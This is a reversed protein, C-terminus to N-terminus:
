AAKVAAIARDFIVLLTTHDVTDNMVTLGDKHGLARAERDLAAMAPSFCDSTTVRSIAGFACYRMAEPARAECPEGQSNRAMTGQTWNAPNVIMARARELVQAVSIM